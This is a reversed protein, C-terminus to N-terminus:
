WIQFLFEGGLKKKRAEGGHMVGEPTSLVALGFGQHVSKIERYGTYMRRSPKSFIRFDRLAPQGGSYKLRIDIVNRRGVARKQVEGLYGRASLLQAIEFDMKSFPAQLSERRANEANKIRALLDTYM